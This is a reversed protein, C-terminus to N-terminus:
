SLLVTRLIDRITEKEAKKIKVFWNPQHLYTVDFQIKDKNKFGVDVKFWLNVGEKEEAKLKATHADIVDKFYEKFGNEFSLRPKQEGIEKVLINKDKHQCRLLYSIYGNVDVKTINVKM